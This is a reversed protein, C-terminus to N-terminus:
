SKRKRPADRGTYVVSVADRRAHTPGTAQPRIIGSTIRTTLSARKPAPVRVRCARARPPSAPQDGRWSRCGRLRARHLRPVLYRGRLRPVTRSTVRRAREPAAVPRRGTYNVPPTTHSGPPSNVGGAVAGRPAAPGTPTRHDDSSSERPASPRPPNKNRASSAAARLCGAPSVM